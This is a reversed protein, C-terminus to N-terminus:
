KNANVYKFQWNKDIILTQEGESSTSSKDIGSTAYLWKNEQLKDNKFEDKNVYLTAMNAFEKARNRDLYKWETIDDFYREAEKKKEESLNEFDKKAEEIAVQHERKKEREELKKELKYDLDEDWQNSKNSWLLSEKAEEFSSYNFRKTALENALKPDKDYFELLHNPDREVKEQESDLALNKLRKAEETSGNLQEKYRQLLRDKDQNDNEQPNDNQSAEDQNSGYDLNEDVTM